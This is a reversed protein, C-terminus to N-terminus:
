ASVSTRGLELARALLAVYSKTDLVLATVTALISEPTLPRPVGAEARLVVDQEPTLVLHGRPLRATADIIRCALRRAEGIEISFPLGGLDAHLTVSPQAGGAVQVQYHVGNHAFEFRASAEDGRPALHRAVSARLDDASRPSPAPETGEQLRPAVPLPTSANTM